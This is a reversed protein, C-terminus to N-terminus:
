LLVWINRFLYSFKLNRAKSDPSSMTCRNLCVNAHFLVGYNWQVEPSHLFPQVSRSSTLTSSDPPGPAWALKNAGNLANASNLAVLTIADVQHLSYWPKISAFVQIWAILPHFQLFCNDSNHSSSPIQWIIQQISLVGTFCLWQLFVQQVATREVSFRTQLAHCTTHFKKKVEVVCHTSLLWRCCPSRTEIQESWAIIM